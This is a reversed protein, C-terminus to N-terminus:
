VENRRINTTLENDFRGFTLFYCFKSIIQLAQPLMIHYKPLLFWCIIIVSTSFDSATQNTVQNFKLIVDKHVTAGTIRSM